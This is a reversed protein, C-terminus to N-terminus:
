CTFIFILPFRRICKPLSGSWNGSLECELGPPGQLKYGWECKFIVKGGYSNNHEEIQLHPEILTQTTDLPPCQVLQCKPVATSWKGIEFLVYSM